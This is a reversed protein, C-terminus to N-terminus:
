RWKTAVPRGANHSGAQIRWISFAPWSSWSMAPIHLWCAQFGRWCATQPKMPLDGAPTGGNVWYPHQALTDADIWASVQNDGVFLVKPNHQFEEPPYLHHPAAPNSQMTSCGTALTLILPLFHKM